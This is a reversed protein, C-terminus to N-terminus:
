HNLIINPDDEYASGIHCMTHLVDSFLEYLGELRTLCDVREPVELTLVDVGEPYTEVHEAYMLINPEKKLGHSINQNSLLRKVELVDNAQIIFMNDLVPEGVEIDELSFHPAGKISFFKALYEAWGQHYMKFHFGDANLYPAHIRTFIRDPDYQQHLDITVTWDDVHAVIRDEHWDIDSLYDGGLEKSLERWVSRAWFHFPKREM